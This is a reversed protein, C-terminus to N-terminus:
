RTSRRAWRTSTPPRGSPAGKQRSPRWSPRRASSGRLRRRRSRGPSAWDMVLVEGFAGVMINDPKIDRHVIKREHAYAITRAVRGLADVLRRFTWGDLGPNFRNPAADVHIAAILESFTRGRVEQMAFWPRGDWLRGRDHVAVVGPHELLATIRAEHEFRSLAEFHGALNPKLVKLVIVRGFRTDRIRHLEGMGGVALPGLDVYRGDLGLLRAPRSRRPADSPALTEDLSRPTDDAAM